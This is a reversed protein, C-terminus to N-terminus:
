PRRYYNQVWKKGFCFDRNAIDYQERERENMTEDEINLLAALSMTFGIRADLSQWKYASTVQRLVEEYLQPVTKSYDASITGYTDRMSALGLLGFVRDRVDECEQEPWMILLKELTYGHRSTQWALRNSIIQGAPSTLIPDIFDNLGDFLNSSSLSAAGLSRYLRALDSWRCTDNGCVITIDTALLFEQVIWVRKWYERSFLALLALKLSATSLERKVTTPNELWHNANKVYKLAINSGEHLNAEGLWVLVVSAQAYISQMM